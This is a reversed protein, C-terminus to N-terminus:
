PFPWPNPACGLLGKTQQMMVPAPVGPGPCPVHDYGLVHGVEHNVVYRRYATRDDGYDPHALVWRYHTIVARDGVRCSLTGGTDLGACLRQATAPSALVVVIEADGDTRAFSMAGGRGWSRADNLGEMAFAAFVAPAVPVGGEVEVRVTRVPGPGPAPVTGPVVVTAGTGAPPVDSSLLGARADAATLSPDAVPAAPASADQAVRVPAPAPPSGSPPAASPAPLPAPAPEPLVGPVALLGSVAAVGAVFGVLRRVPGLRGGPGPPAVGPHRPGPEHM